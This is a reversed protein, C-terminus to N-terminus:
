GSCYTIKNQLVAPDNTGINKDTRVVQDGSYTIDGHIATWYTNTNFNTMRTLPGCDPAFESSEDPTDENKNSIIVSKPNTAELLPKTVVQGSNGSTAHHSASLYDISELENGYRDVIKRETSGKIDGTTLAETNKYQVHLVISNQNPNGNETVKPNLVDATADGLTIRDGARLVGTDTESGVAKDVDEEQVTDKKVGAFHLNRVTIDDDELVEDVYSIHDTDNHSVVLHDIVYNGADNKDIRSTLDSRYPKEWLSSRANSGADVLLTKNRGDPNPVEFLTSQGKGMDIHTAQLDGTESTDDDDDDSYQDYINSAKYVDLAFDGVTRIWLKERESLRWDQETGPADDIEEEDTLEEDSQEDEKEREITDGVTEVSTAGIITSGLIYLAIHGDGNPNEGVTVTYEGQQEAIVATELVTRVDAPNNLGPTNQISEWGYERGDQYSRGASMEVPANLTGSVAPSISTFEHTEARSGLTLEGEIIRSTVSPEGDIVESGGEIVLGGILVAAGAPIAVPEEGSPFAASGGIVMAGGKQIDAGPGGTEVTVKYPIENGSSDTVNLYYETPAEPILGPNDILVLYEDDLRVGYSRIAWGYGEDIMEDPVGLLKGSNGAWYSDGIAPSYNARVEVSEIDGSNIETIRIYRGWQGSRAEFSPPTNDVTPEPDRLDHLGDGDTDRNTADSGVNEIEVGDDVGDYDTDPTIPNATYDFYSGEYKQGNHVFSVTKFQGVERGDSLGDGDTDNSTPDTHIVEGNPGGLVIGSTEREDSLGDGDTDNIETTTNAVRWFVEPLDDAEEVIYSEGGTTTAIDSLKDSSASEFGITYITINEEAAIEAEQPGGPGRGDTLFILIESTSENSNQATYEIGDKLSSGIKTGTGWGYPELSSISDNAAQHDTTYPQVVEAYGAFELVAVRDVDLLGGVFRQASQQAYGNPDTNDMSGSTDILLTTDVPKVGDDDTQRVPETANYTTAWNSIDFVAFTSFHTTEATATNNTADVTSNLPVFIGAEPDYTFVALDRSENEVRTENYALTVNASSFEQESNLEVVPSASMNGVRSTNFRPDDQPAITTGNGIDGNGTLSLTVGLTENTATTTYSEEGDSVGNDNSDAVLPDTGLRVEEGDPLGDSDTDAKLPDTGLQHIETGDLLGDGDTDPNNTLTGAVTENYISLSDNDPDAASDQVGDDDTDPDTPDVSQLRSEVDDTLRDGDTDNSRPDTGLRYERYAPLTDNDWDEAGDIVADGDSDAVRPNTKTVNREYADPLGDGDTDNPSTSRTAVFLWQIDGVDTRNDGTYDYASWNAGAATSGLHRSLADVDVINVAGDGNVDEYLGDGDPDTPQNDGVLPYPHSDNERPALQEIASANPETSGNWSTSLPGTAQNGATAAPTQTSQTRTAENGATSAPTQTPQTQTPENGATTVAQNGASTGLTDNGATQLPGAGTGTMM